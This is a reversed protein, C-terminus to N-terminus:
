EYFLQGIPPQEKKGQGTAKRYSSRNWRNFTATSTVVDRNTELIFTDWWSALGNFGNSVFATEKRHFLTLVFFDRMLRSKM